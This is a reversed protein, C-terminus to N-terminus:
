EYEKMVGKMEVLCDIIKDFGNYLTTIDDMYQDKESREGEYHACRYALIDSVVDNYNRMQRYNSAGFMAKEIMAKMGAAYNKISTEIDNKKNGM